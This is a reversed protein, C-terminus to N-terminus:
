ETGYYAFGHKGDVECSISLSQPKTEYSNFRTGDSKTFERFPIILPDQSQILAVKYVYGGRILGANMELKCDTWDKDEINTIQYATESFRVEAQLELQSPTATPKETPTIDTQAQQEQSAPQPDDITTDPTENSLTAILFLFVFIGTIIWKVKKGWSSYKWMLFLGVPFFIILFIVIWINKQYWKKIEIEM